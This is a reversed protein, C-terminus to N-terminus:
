GAKTIILGVSTTVYGQVEIKLHPNSFPPLDIHEDVVTGGPWLNLPEVTHGASTLEHIVLELDHKRFLCLEREEITADNSVLNFETTQVSIGGPKLTELSNHLYDLGKRISGLHEFACASWCFDFDRLEPSINNMDAPQFKVMEFFIERDVLNPRWLDNLGESWQDSQAWHVSFDLDPPADTALVEVGAKALVSPLPEKGAGFALGRKGPVVMGKAELAALIYTFEWIKRHQQESPFGLRGCLQVYADSQMQEFTCLQCVLAELSPPEFRTRVGSFESPRLLFPPILFGDEPHGSGANAQKFLGRAEPTRLFNDRLAEVTDYGHRHFEVNAADPELGLLLRIGWEAAERTVAM